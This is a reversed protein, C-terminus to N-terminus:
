IQEEKENNTNQLNLVQENLLDRQDVLEGIKILYEQIKSRLVTEQKASELAAHNLRNLTAHLKQVKIEHEKKLSDIKQHSEKKFQQYDTKSAQLQEQSENRQDEATTLRKELRQIQQNLFFEKQVGRLWIGTGTVITNQHKNWLRTVQGQFSNDVHVESESKNNISDSLKKNSFSLIERYILLSGIFPLIITPDLCKQGYRVIQTGTKQLFVKLKRKRQSFRKLRELRKKAKQNRIERRRILEKQGQYYQNNLDDLDKQSLDEENDNFNERKKMNKNVEHEM